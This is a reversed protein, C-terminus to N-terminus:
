KKSVVLVVKEGNKVDGGNWDHMADLLTEWRYVFAEGRKTGPDNTIAYGDDTFGRLVLMHYPPGPQRFYPNGLAQGDAPMIILAGDSLASTLNDVTPNWLLRADLEPSLSLLVKRVEVITTDIAFGLSENRLLVSQLLEEAHDPSVIEESRFYQLTMLISAEECAEKHVEDWEGHPAQSTFPVDWNIGTLDPSFSSSSGSSTLAMREQAPPREVDLQELVKERRLEANRIKQFVTFGIGGILFATLFYTVCPKLRM